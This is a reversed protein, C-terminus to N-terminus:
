FMGNFGMDVLGILILDVHLVQIGLTLSQYCDM